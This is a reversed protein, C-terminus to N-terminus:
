DQKKEDKGGPGGPKQATIGSANIFLAVAILGVFSFSWRRYNM